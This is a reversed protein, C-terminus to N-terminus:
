VRPVIGRESNNRLSHPVMEQKSLVAEFNQRRALEELNPDPAFVALSVNSMNVIIEICNAITSGNIWNDSMLDKFLIVRNSKEADEV